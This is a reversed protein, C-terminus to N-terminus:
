RSIRQANVYWYPQLMVRKGYSIKGLVKSDSFPKEYVNLGQKAAVYMTGATQAFANTAFIIIAFLFSIIKRM